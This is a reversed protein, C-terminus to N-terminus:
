KLVCDPTSRRRMGLWWGYPVHVAKEPPNPGELKIKPEPLISHAGSPLTVPLPQFTHEYGDGGDGGGGDGGGEGGGGDGGGKGGGGEGGGDGGGDGGGNGGSTPNLGEVTAGFVCIVRPTRPLKADGPSM